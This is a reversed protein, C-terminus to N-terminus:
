KAKGKSYYGTDLRMAIEHLRHKAEGEATTDGYTLSAAHYRLQEADEYADERPVPAYVAAHTWSEPDIKADPFAGAMDIFEWLRKDIYKEAGKNSKVTPYLAELRAVEALAADMKEILKEAQAAASDSVSQEIELARKFQSVEAQAAELADAAKMCMNWCYIADGDGGASRLKAILDTNDMM